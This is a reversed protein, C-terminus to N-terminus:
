AMLLPWTSNVFGSTPSSGAPGHSVSTAAQSVGSHSHILTMLGVVAALLTGLGALIGPVTTWFNAFSHKSSKKMGAVMHVTRRPRERM